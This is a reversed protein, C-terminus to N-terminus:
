RQFIEKLDFNILDIDHFNYKLDGPKDNYYPRTCGSCGSTLFANEPQPIKEPIIGFSLIVGNEDFVMDNVSILSNKILYYATQIRRYSIIDPFPRNKLLTTKIPTFAFLGVKIERELMDEIFIVAEKETEGL